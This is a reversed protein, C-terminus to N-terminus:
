SIKDFGDRKLPPATSDHGFITVLRDFSRFPGNRKPKYQNADALYRRRVDIGKYFILNLFYNRASKYNVKFYDQQSIDKLHAGCFRRIEGRLRSLHLKKSYTYLQTWNALTVFHSLSFLISIMLNITYFNERTRGSAVIKSIAALPQPWLHFDWVKVM